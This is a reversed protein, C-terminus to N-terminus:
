PQQQSLVVRYTFVNSLCVSGIIAKDDADIDLLHYKDSINFEPEIFRNSAERFFFEYSPKIDYRIFNRIENFYEQLLVELENGFALYNFAIKTISRPKITVTAKVDLEKYAEEPYILCIKENLKESLLQSIFDLKQNGHPTLIIRKEHTPYNENIKEKEPLNDSSFFDYNGCTKRFGLDYDTVLIIKKEEESFYRTVPLGKYIGKCVFRIQDRDYDGTNLKEPGKIIGHDFRRSGEPTSTRLETDLTRGFYHNCEDCVKNKLVPNDPSFKGFSRPIVHEVGKFLTEDGKKFCYICTHLM